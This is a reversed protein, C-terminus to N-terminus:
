APRDRRSASFVAVRSAGAAKQLPRTPRMTASLPLQGSSDGCHKTIANHRVCAIGRVVFNFRGLADDRKKSSQVYRFEGPFLANSQGDGLRPGHLFPDFRDAGSSAMQPKLTKMPFSRRPEAYRVRRSRRKATEQDISAVGIALLGPFVFCRSRALSKDFTHWPFREHRRQGLPEFASPAREDRRGSEKLSLLPGGSLMGVAELAFVKLGESKCTEPLECPDGAVLDERGRDDDAFRIWLSL